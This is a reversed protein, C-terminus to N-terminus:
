IGLLWEYEDVLHQLEDIRDRLKEIEEKLRENQEKLTLNEERLRSVQGNLHERDRTTSRGMLIVWHLSPPQFEKTTQPYCLLALLPM